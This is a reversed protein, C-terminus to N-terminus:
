ILVRGPEAAPPELIRPTHVGECPAHPALAIAMPMRSSVGIDSTAARELWESGSGVGNTSHRKQKNPRSSAPRMTSITAGCYRVQTSEKMRQYQRGAVRCRWRPSAGPSRSRRPWAIETRGLGCRSGGAWSRRVDTSLETRVGTFIQFLIATINKCAQLRTQCAFGASDTSFAGAAIPPISIGRHLPVRWSYRDLSEAGLRPRCCALRNM